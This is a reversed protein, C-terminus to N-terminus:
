LSSIYPGQRLPGELEGGQLKYSTSTLCRLLPVLGSACM